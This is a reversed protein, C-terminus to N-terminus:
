ERRSKKQKKMGLDLVDVYEIFEGESSGRWDLGCRQGYNNYYDILYDGQKQQILVGIM